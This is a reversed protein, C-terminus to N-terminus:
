DAPVGGQGAPLFLDARRFGCLLAAISGSPIRLRRNHLRASENFARAKEAVLADIRTLLVRRHLFTSLSNLAQLKDAESFLDRLAAGLAEEKAARDSANTAHRAASDAALLAAVRVKGIHPECSGLMAALAEHRQALLNLIRLWAEELSASSAKLRRAAIWVRACFAGLCLTWVVLLVLDIV